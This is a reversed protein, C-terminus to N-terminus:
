SKPLKFEYELITRVSVPVGDKEGPVFKVNSAAEMAKESLGFPLGSRLKIDTVEGSARLVAGIYVTGTIQHQLAEKTYEARPQSTVVPKKSVESSKYIQEAQKGGILSPRYLRVAFLL